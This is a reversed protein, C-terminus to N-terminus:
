AGHAIILAINHEICYDQLAAVAADSPPHDLLTAFREHPALRTVMLNGTYDHTQALERLATTHQHRQELSAQEPITAYLLPFALRACVHLRGDAERVIWDGPKAILAERDNVFVHVEDTLRAIGGAVMPGLQVAQRLWEPTASCREGLWQVADVADAKRHHTPM